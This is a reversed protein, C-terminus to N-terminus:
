TQNLEIILYFLFHYVLIFAMFYTWKWSKSKKSTWIKKDEERTSIEKEVDVTVYYRIFGILTFISANIGYTNFNFDVIIGALFSILILWLHNINAPLLLVFMIMIHPQFLYTFQTNFGFYIKNLILMQIILLLVLLGLYKLADLIM